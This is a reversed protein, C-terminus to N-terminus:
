KYTDHQQRLKSMVSQEGINRNIALNFKQASTNKDFVSGRNANNFNGKNLIHPNEYM